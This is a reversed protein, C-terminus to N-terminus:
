RAYHRRPSIPRKLPHSLATTVKIPNKLKNLIFLFLFSNGIRLIQIMYTADCQMKQTIFDLVPLM